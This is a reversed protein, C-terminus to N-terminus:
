QLNSQNIPASLGPTSNVCTCHGASITPFVPLKLLSSALIGATTTPDDAPTEESTGTTTDLLGEEVTFAVEVEVGLATEEMAEDSVVMIMDAEKEGAVVFDAAEGDRVRATLGALLEAHGVDDSGTLATAFHPCHPPL